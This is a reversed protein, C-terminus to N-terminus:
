TICATCTDVFNVACNDHICVKLICPCFVKLHGIRFHGVILLETRNYNTSLTDLKQLTPIHMRAYTASCAVTRDIIDRDFRRWKEVLRLKLHHDVDLIQSYVGTANSSCAGFKMSLQVLTSPTISDPAIRCLIGSNQVISSLRHCEAPIEPIERGHCACNVSHLCPTM